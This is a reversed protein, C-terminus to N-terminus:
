RRPQTARPIRRFRNPREARLLPHLDRHRPHSRRLGSRDHPDAAARRLRRRRLRLRPHLEAPLARTGGPGPSQRGLPRESRVPAPGRPHAARVSRRGRGEQSRGPGDLVPRQRPPLPQRRRLVRRRLRPKAVIGDTAGAPDALIHGSPPLGRRRTGPRRHCPHRQRHELRGHRGAIQRGRSSRPRHRRGRHASRRDGTRFPHRGGHRCGIAFFWTVIGGFIVAASGILYGCTLPLRNPHPNDAGGVLHGFLYPAVVGGTGQSIAFFFSIAQARIELPFIESVTLFASSAGASAFFFVVCWILTQTTATLVEAQFAWASAFLLTGSVLYTGCIMKRRGVTDFLPGLVLPGLLNGIAFPFFYYGTHASSVHYFHTLVLAETFFIANYLFSQTAMMTFGLFARSPYRTVVTHVVQRYSLKRADIIDLSASEDVPTPDIGRSRLRQEIDDITKEAEDSRGHTLLWRPSEPIQKRLFIIVIGLCPGLFFGIRWGWHIPTVNENFLVLSMLAGLAAGGWYTGNVAIDVRGRYRAPIIEDIASNIATYEGGIGTGAIFRFLYLSWVGWSLGALGSGIFYIALTLIFLKKRGLRDTIRGFVLAGVVQGALYWSATAGVQGSTLHLTQASQLPGGMSSVIQIELGDLIWSVGLGVVVLWHFRTWPLRDL